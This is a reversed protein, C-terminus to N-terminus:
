EETLVHPIFRENSLALIIPADFERICLTAPIAHKSTSQGAMWMGVIFKNRGEVAYPPCFEQYVRPCDDYHGSSSATVEGVEDHIQINSSLRGLVPKSVYPEVTAHFADPSTYTRLFPAGGHEEAFAKDTEFLHTIYAMMGKHSLFWRWAPELLAVNDAWREWQRFAAPFNEVMEEWPSLIFLADLYNETGKVVFPKSPNAHDYDIDALDLLYTTAQEGIVQALTECTAMDEIYSTSCAVAVQHGTDLGHDRLMDSTLSYWDNYQHAPDAGISTLLRHQLNISEFLMVPTDGNFEYIGVVEETQPDLAADFRGYLSQGVMTRSKFTHRAYPIFTAGHKALFDCAFFQNIAQPDGLLRELADIMAAYANCFANGIGEASSARLNYFPMAQANASPFALLDKADANFEEGTRYLAAMYPLEEQAVSPLHFDTLHRTARM